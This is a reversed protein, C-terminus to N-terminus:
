RMRVASKPGLKSWYGTRQERVIAGRENLPLGKFEDLRIKDM